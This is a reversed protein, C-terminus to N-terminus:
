SYKKLASTASDTNDMSHLVGTFLDRYSQSAPESKAAYKSLYNIVMQLSTVIKCHTNARWIHSTFINHDDLLPDNRKPISWM